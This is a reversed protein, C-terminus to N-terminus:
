PRADPYEEGCIVTDICENDASYVMNSLIHDSPTLTHHHRRLLLCDALMGERIEGADLQAWKAGNRTAMGFVEEAAATTPDGSLSKAWLAALKMEELMSLNNNSSAGDTGLTLRIGANVAEAYQFNGSCLKMNSAPCHAIIVDNDRLIGRERDNIHVAHVALVDPGWFDMSDLYEVPRMGHKKICNEVESATESIHIQVRKGLDRALEICSKLANGSDTYISHPGLVFRVRPSFEKEHSFVGTNCKEVEGSTGDPDIIVPAIDARIGMEEAARATGLPYWYMDNFYVTGSKIMELIALRSGHYVDEESLNKELPWIYDNLWPFLEIDDAYARMLSMAAHTHMNYFAPLIAFPRGDIVTDAAIDIKAAIRMFSGKEIHIDTTKGFLQVHKILISM